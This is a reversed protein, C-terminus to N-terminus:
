YARDRDVGTAIYVSDRTKYLLGSPLMAKVVDFLACFCRQRLWLALKLGFEDLVPSDDLVKAISKLEKDTETQVVSLIMAESMKNGSGFPVLARCGPVATEMLEKPILYEYPKDIAYTAASVAVRAVLPM